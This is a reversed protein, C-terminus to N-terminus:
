CWLPACNPSRWPCAFSQVNAPLWIFNRTGPGDEQTAFLLQRKGRRTLRNLDVVESYRLSPLVNKAFQIQSANLPRVQPESAMRAMGLVGRVESPNTLNSLTRLYLQREPQSANKRGLFSKRWREGPRWCCM